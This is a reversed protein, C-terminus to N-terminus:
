AKAPMIGIARYPPAPSIRRAKPAAVPAPYFERMLLIPRDPCNAGLAPLTFREAYARDLWQPRYHNFLIEGNVDVAGLLWVM